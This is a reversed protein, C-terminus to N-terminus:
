LKHTVAHGGHVNKEVNRNVSLRSQCIDPCSTVLCTWGDYCIIWLWVCHSRSGAMVLLIPVVASYAFDVCVFLVDEGVFAQLPRNQHSLILICITQENKNCHISLVNYLLSSSIHPSPWCSTFIDYLFLILLFSNSSTPFQSIKSVVCHRSETRRRLTAWRLSFFSVM